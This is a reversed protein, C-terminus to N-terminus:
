KAKVEELTKYKSGEPTLESKILKFENITIEKEELKIQNIKKIFEEKDKIFYDYPAPMYILDLVHKGDSVMEKDKLTSIAMGFGMSNPDLEFDGKEWLAFLNEETDFKPFYM